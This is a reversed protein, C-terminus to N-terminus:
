EKKIGLIIEVPIWMHKVLAKQIIFGAKELARQIYIPRCDLFNPFHKHTWEFVGVLPDKPGEKSMGVVVIRGGNSLVRKCEGLVLPIEPTDFLELAFSMFVADISGAAYPLIAADGCRLQCRGALGATVLNAKAMKVMKDSLDLGFVKGSPGVAQALAALCHGTGFGIELVAEGSSAKLLTLGAKRMPAESRDSLLDYVISIKNYFAKTQDKSQFVRLIAPSTSLAAGPKM